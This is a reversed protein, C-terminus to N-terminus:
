FSYHKGIVLFHLSVSKLFMTKLLFRLSVLIDSVGYPQSTTNLGNNVILMHNSALQFLTALYVLCCCVVVSIMNRPERNV